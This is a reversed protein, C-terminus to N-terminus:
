SEEGFLWGDLEREMQDLMTGEGITFQTTGGFARVAEGPRLAECTQAIRMALFDPTVPEKVRVIIGINYGKIRPM